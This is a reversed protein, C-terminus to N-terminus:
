WWAVDGRMLLEGGPFCLGASVYRVYLRVIDARSFGDLVCRRPLLDLM